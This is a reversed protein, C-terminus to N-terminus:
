CCEQLFAKLENLFQLANMPIGVAREQINEPLQFFVDHVRVMKSKRNIFTVKEFPWRFLNPHNFDEGLEILMLRRNLTAALWKNYLDWQKEEDRSSEAASQRQVFDGILLPNVIRKPNIGSKEFLNVQHSTIIFYNKKELFPKFFAFLGDKQNQDMFQKQHMQAGLGIVVMEASKYVNIFEEYIRNDM